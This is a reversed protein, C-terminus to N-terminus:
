QVEKSTLRARIRSSSYKHGRSVFVNEIGEIDDGTFRRGIWDEGLFRKNPHMVTLLDYLEEETIYPIVEDVYKTSMLQLYRESPLMVPRNKGERVSPDVQLLIILRDCYEKAEALARLHGPHLLDFTGPFVGIAM